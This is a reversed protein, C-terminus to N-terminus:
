NWGQTRTGGRRRFRLPGSGHLWYWVALLGLGLLGAIFLVWALPHVAVAAINPGSFPGIVVRGAGPGFVRIPGPGPVIRRTAFAISSSSRGVFLALGAGVFM